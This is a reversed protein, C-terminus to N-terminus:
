INEIAIQRGNEQIASKAEAIRNKSIEFYKEDKEIGIFNRGTNVCAVGTSGSGMFCDLVTGGPPCSVNILRELIELPKQCTHLRGNSPVPPVHWINCHMPDCRHYNRLEEYSKRLEEYSKRLEEYSKGFGLPEYVTKWVERTPISFQSDQFYHRLMYPKKGTAETYKEAIDKDTLGLRAKEAAYWDKLPRYCEKNSNIRDLGTHKWSAEADRPANFFHLCYECINFWSRLATAGNPDRNHWTQARYGLGKDWICFSVFALSTKQRIAQLLEAIQEMDNHWFYLVGNPKLIRQCEMLWEICWDIYEDIKDWRNVEAKGNKQTAVGINYPPDTLVLNVSQAPLQRLVDLCDGLFLKYEM